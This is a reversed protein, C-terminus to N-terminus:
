SLLSKARASLEREIQSKFPIAAFPLNAELVVENDRVDMSGSVAFGMAKFAFTGRNGNWSEQVDSARDGYKTKMEEAM